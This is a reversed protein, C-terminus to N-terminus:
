TLEQSAEYLYKLISARFLGNSIRRDIRSLVDNVPLGSKGGREQSVRRRDIRSAMALGEDVRSRDRSLVALDRLSASPENLSSAPIM